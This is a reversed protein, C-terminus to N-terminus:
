IHSNLVVIFVTSKRRPQVVCMMCVLESHAYIWEKLTYAQTVSPSKLLVSQCSRGEGSVFLCVRIETDICGDDKERLMDLGM